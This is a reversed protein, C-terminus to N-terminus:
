YKIARGLKRFPLLPVDRGQVYARPPVVAFNQSQESLLTVDLAHLFFLNLPRPQVLLGFPIM